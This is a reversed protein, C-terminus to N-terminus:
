KLMSHCISLGMGTGFPNMEQGNQMSEFPVFLKERDSELIGIGEDKVRITIMKNSRSMSIEVIISGDRM